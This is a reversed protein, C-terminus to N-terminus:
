RSARLAGPAMQFAPASRVHVLQRTPSMSPQMQAPPSYSDAGGVAAARRMKQRADHAEIAEIFGQPPGPAATSPKDFFPITMPGSRRIARQRELEQRQVRASEPTSPRGAPPTTQRLPSTPPLRVNGMRRPAPQGIQMDAPWTVSKEPGAPGPERNGRSHSHRRPNPPSTRPDDTGIRVIPPSHTMPPQARTVVKPQRQKAERSSARSSSRSGMAVNRIKWSPVVQSIQSPAELRLDSPARAEERREVAVFPEHELAGGLLARLSDPDMSRTHAQGRDLSTYGDRLTSAAERDFSNFGDRLTSAAEKPGGPEVKRTSDLRRTGFDTLAFSIATDGAKHVSGMTSTKSLAFTDDGVVELVTKCTPPGSAALVVGKATASAQAIVAAVCVASMQGSAAFMELVQSRAVQPMTMRERPSVVLMRGLLPGAASELISGGPGKCQDSLPAYQGSTIRLILEGLSRGEFPRKLTCLEYLVVGLSWVDCAAGYPEGAVIEPAMYTPSGVCTMQDCVTTGALVKAVGFDGLKVYGTSTLLVNSPKLDRHLIRHAHVYAVAVALQAFVAMLALVELCRGADVHWRLLQQLDGSDAFEMVLSLTEKEEVSGYYRLIGHHNLAQLARVEALHDAVENAPLGARRLRKVACLLGDARRM